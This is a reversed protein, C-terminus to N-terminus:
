DRERAHAEGEDGVGRTLAERARGRAMTEMEEMERGHIEEIEMEGIARLREIAEKAREGDSAMARECAELELTTARTAGNLAREAEANTARMREIEIRAREISARQLKLAEMARTQARYKALARFAYAFVMGFLALTDDNTRMRRSSTTRRLPKFIVSTM